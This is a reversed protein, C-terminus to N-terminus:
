LIFSLLYHTTGWYLYCIVLVVGTFTVSLSYYGLFPLLYRTTGWYLYCIVLLVWTFLVNEKHRNPPSNTKM